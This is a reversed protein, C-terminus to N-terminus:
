DFIRRCFNKEVNKYPWEGNRKFYNQDFKSKIINIIKIRDPHENTRHIYNKESSHNCKIVFKEPLDDLNIEEPANWVKLTPIIYEKGIINAAWEKFKIKDVITTYLPNRNYLMLWKLKENFTQPNRWNIIKNSKLWFMISIFAKDSIFEKEYFNRIISIFNERISMMFM